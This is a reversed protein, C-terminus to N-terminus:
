AGADERADADLWKRRSVFNWLAVMASAGVKVISVTLADSGFYSIGIWMICENIVLGIGSLVIFVIFERSRSLEDRHTFVFRMSAFYNFVSSVIFSIGAALVPNMRVVQSLLMLMLYDIIFATIGVVSFRFFQRLLNRLIAGQM